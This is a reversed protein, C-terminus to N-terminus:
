ICPPPGSTRRCRSRADVGIPVLRGGRGVCATERSVASELVGRSSTIDSVISKRKGANARQHSDNSKEKTKQM